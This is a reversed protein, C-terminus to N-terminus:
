FMKRIREEYLSGGPRSLLADARARAESTRGLKRLADIAVMEREVSMKGRPYRAAHEGTLRLAEAPSGSLAGRARDLLAVEDALADEPTPEPASSPVAGSASVVSRAIPAIEAASPASSPEPASTSRVSPGRPAATSVPTSLPPDMPSWPAVLTGVGVILGLGAGFAAGPLWSLGGAIAAGAVAGALRKRSRAREEATMSRSPAGARLLARVEPSASDRLRRLDSM